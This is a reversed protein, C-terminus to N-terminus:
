KKAKDRNRRRPKARGRSTNAKRPLPRVNPRDQSAEAACAARDADAVLEATEADTAPAHALQPAGEDAADEAAALMRVEASMPVYKSMRRVGSKLWMDNFHTHWYSNRAGTEEARQYAKSYEDRIDEADERSLVVVMSRGGGRIRCFAYALIPEGRQAKPLHVAPRHYFDEGAPASPEFSWDDNEHIMGVVVADVRGSRHMLTIYGHYTPIFVALKGDAKIVAERGDPILGFRACTTLAQLVSAHTCRAVDPLVNRVAAMFSAPDVCRPLLDTLEGQYRRLQEVSADKLTDREAATTDNDPLPATDPAEDLPPGVPAPGAAGAAKVRDLLSTTM